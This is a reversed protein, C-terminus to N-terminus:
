PINVIPLLSRRLIRHLLAAPYVPHDLSPHSRIIMRFYRQAPNLRIWVIIQDHFPSRVPDNIRNRRRYILDLSGIPIQIPHPPRLRHMQRLRLAIRPYISLLMAHLLHLHPHCVAIHVRLLDPVKFICIRHPLQPFPKAAQQVFVAFPRILLSCPLLPPLLRDMPHLKRKGVPLPLPLKHGMDIMRDAMLFLQEDFRRGPRALRNGGHKRCDLRHSLFLRVPNKIQRCLGDCSRDRIMRKSHQPLSPQMKLRDHQRRPVLDTKHLFRLAIRISTRICLSM